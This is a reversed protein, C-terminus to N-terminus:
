HFPTDEEIAETGVEIGRVFWVNSSYMLKTVTGECRQFNGVGHRLIFRVPLPDATLTPPAVTIVVVSSAAYAIVM